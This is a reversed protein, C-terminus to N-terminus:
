YGSNKAFYEIYYEKCGVTGCICCCCCCLIALEKCLSGSLSFPRDNKIREFQILLNQAEAKKDRRLQSSQTQELLKNHTLLVRIIRDLVDKYPVVDYGPVSVDGSTTVSADQLTTTLNAIGRIERFGQPSQYVASM